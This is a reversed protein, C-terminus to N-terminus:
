KMLASGHHREFADFGNIVHTFVVYKLRNKNV